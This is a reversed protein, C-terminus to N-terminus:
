LQRLEDASCNLSTGKKEATNPIEGLDRVMEKIVQQYEEIDDSEKLAKANLSHMHGKPHYGSTGKPIRPINLQVILPVHDSIDHWIPSHSVGAATYTANTLLGVCHDIRSILDGNHGCTNLRLKHEALHDGIPDTFGTADLWKQLPPHSSGGREHLHRSSNLDGTVLVNSNTPSKVIFDMVKDDIETQLYDMATLGAAMAPRSKKVRTLLSNESGGAPAWYTNIVLLKTLKFNFTLYMTVGQGTADTKMGTFYPRARHGIIALQGGVMLQKGGPPIPAAPNKCITWVKNLKAYLKAQLQESFYDSRGDHARTDQLFIVDVDNRIIYLVIADLKDDGLIRVNLTVVTLNGTHKDLVLLTDDGFCSNSDTVAYLTTKRGEKELEAWNMEPLREVERPPEQRLDRQDTLREEFRRTTQELSELISELRPGQDPDTHAREAHRGREDYWYDGKPEATLHSRELIWKEAADMRKDAAVEPMYRKILEARMKRGQRMEYLLPEMGRNGFAEQGALIRTRAIIVLEPAGNRWRVDIKTNAETPHLPHDRVYSGREQGKVGDAYLEHLCHYEDHYTGKAVFRRDRGDHVQDETLNDQSYLALVDGKEANKSLFSGLTPHSGPLRKVLLYGYPDINILNLTRDNRSPAVEGENVTQTTNVLPISSAIKVVVQPQFTVHRASKGKRM